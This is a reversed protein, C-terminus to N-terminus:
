VIWGGSPAEKFYDERVHLLGDGLGEPNLIGDKTESM